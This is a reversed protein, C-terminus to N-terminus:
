VANKILADTAIRALTQAQLASPPCAPSSVPYPALHQSLPQLEHWPSIPLLVRQLLPNELPMLRSDPARYFRNLENMVQIMVGM